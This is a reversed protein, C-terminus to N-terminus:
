LTACVWIRKLRICECVADDENIRLSEWKYTSEGEPFDKRTSSIRALIHFTYGNFRSHSQYTSLNGIARPGYCIDSSQRKTLATCQMNTAIQRESPCMSLVNKEWQIPHADPWQLLNCTQYTRYMDAIVVSKGTVRLDVQLQFHIQTTPKCVQGRPRVISM